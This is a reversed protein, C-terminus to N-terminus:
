STMDADENDVPEPAAAPALAGAAAIAPAPNPRPAQRRAGGPPVRGFILLHIEIIQVGGPFISSIRFFSSELRKSSAESGGRGSRM